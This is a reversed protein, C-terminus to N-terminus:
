VYKTLNNLYIQLVFLPETVECVDILDYQCYIQNIFNEYSDPFTAFRMRNKRKTRSENM